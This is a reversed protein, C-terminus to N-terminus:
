HAFWTSVGSVESVKIIKRSANQAATATGTLVDTGTKAVTLGGAGNSFLTIVTGVPYSVASTAPITATTAAANSYTIFGDADTAVLTDTAATVNRYVARNVFRENVQGSQNDSYAM